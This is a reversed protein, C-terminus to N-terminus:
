PNNTFNSLEFLILINHIQIVIFTIEQFYRYEVVKIQKKNSLRMQLGVICSVEIDHVTLSIQNSDKRNSM